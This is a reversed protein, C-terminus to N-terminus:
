STFWGALVLTKTEDFLLPQKLLAAARMQRSCLLLLLVRHQVVCMTSAVNKSQLLAHAAAPLVPHAM